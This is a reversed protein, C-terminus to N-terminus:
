PTKTEARPGTTLISILQWQDPQTRITRQLVQRLLYIVYDRFMCVLFYEIFGYYATFIGNKTWLPSNLYNFKLYKCYIRVFKCVFLTKKHTM